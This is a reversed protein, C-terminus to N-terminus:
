VGCKEMIIKDIANKTDEDFKSAIPKLYGAVILAKAEQESLGKSKLYFLHETNVKGIAAGHNAIVDNEDIKLIPKALAKADKDFVIIKSNLSTKSKKAKNVITNEGIIHLKSQNLCVGFNNILSTSNEKLHKFKLNFIKEDNLSTLSALNFNINANKLLTTELLCKYKGKSFDAVNFTINSNEKIDGNILIDNSNNLFCLNLILNSNENMVLNLNNQDILNLEKTENEKIILDM